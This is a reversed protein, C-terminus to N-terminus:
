RKEPEDQVEQEEEMFAFLKPIIEIPLRLAGGNPNSLYFRKKDSSISCSISGEDPDTNEYNFIKTIKPNDQKTESM